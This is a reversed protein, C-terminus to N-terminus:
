DCYLLRCKGAFAAGIVVVEPIHMSVGIRAIIPMLIISAVTHSVFSAVVLAFLLIYLLALWPHQLPLARIIGDFIYELLGSSAVAKGLVNGGGLLFLTHWSLSNFDVETLMGSGFMIGIYCLSVIGIDGFVSKTFASSAFLGICALSLLLVAINRKGLVSKREYVIVPIAKLDDPEIILVLLVWCLLVCVLCFPTAVCIWQGFSVEIGAQELYLVGLANQLSSIPTMMGGYNCAFALGLLLCRSFKSETPLDRVIPLIIASCLIPATHNSIWMSLFLGLFMVALIFLKPHNGFVKQLAAAIRLELQCRAFATSITYGGLLLMTTHNFMHNLVYQAAKDASMLQGPRDDKLVRLFVVLPPILLATAFYPIAETIWLSITFLLLSLCKSAAPDDPTILPVALSVVFIVISIVLGQVRVAPIVGDNSGKNQEETAFREWEMLKDRSVYSTVVEMLQLPEPSTSFPQREITPIWNELTTKELIKDHKKIIKM